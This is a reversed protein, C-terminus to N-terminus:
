HFLVPPIAWWPDTNTSPVHVSNTFQEHEHENTNTRSTKLWHGGRERVLGTRSRRRENANASAVCCGIGGHAGGPGQASQRILHRFAVCHQVVLLQLQQDNQAHVTVEYFVHASVAVVEGSVLSRIRSQWNHERQERVHERTRTRAHNNPIRPSGTRSCGHTRSRENTNTRSPLKCSCRGRARPNPPCRPM